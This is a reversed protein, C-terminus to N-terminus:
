RANDSNRVRHVIINDHENGYRISKAYPQVRATILMYAWPPIIMSECGRVLVKKGTYRSWNEADIKRVFVDQRFMDGDTFQSPEIVEFAM